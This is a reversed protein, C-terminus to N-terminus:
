KGKMLKTARRSKLKKIEKIDEYKISIESGNLNVNFLVQKEGIATIAGKLENKYVL